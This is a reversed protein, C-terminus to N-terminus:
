LAGITQAEGRRERAVQEYPAPNEAMALERAQSRSM